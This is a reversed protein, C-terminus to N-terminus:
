EPTATLVAGDGLAWTMARVLRPETTAAGLVFERSSGAAVRLAAPGSATWYALCGGDDSLHYPEGEWTRSSRPLPRGEGGRSSCM